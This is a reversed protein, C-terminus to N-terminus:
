LHHTRFQLIKAWPDVHEFSNKKLCDQSSDHNTLFHWFRVKSTLKRNWFHISNKLFFITWSYKILLCNKTFFFRELKLKQVKKNELVMTLKQFVPAGRIRLICYSVRLIDIIPWFDQKKPGVMKLSGCGFQYKLTYIIMVCKLLSSLGLIIM